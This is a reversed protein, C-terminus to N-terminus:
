TADFDGTAAAKRWWQEAVVVEGREQLLVGLNYMAHAHGSGAAERYWQVAEAVEGREELLVGLNYM